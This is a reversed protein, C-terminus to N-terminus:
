TRFVNRSYPAIAAAIAVRGAAVLQNKVSDWRFFRIARASRSAFTVDGQNVWIEIPMLPGQDFFTPAVILDDLKDGHLDVPLINRVYQYRFFFSKNVATARASPTPIVLPTTILSLKLVSAYDPQGGVKTAATTTSLATCSSSDNSRGGSRYRVAPRRNDYAATLLM